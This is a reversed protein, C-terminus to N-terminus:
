GSRPDRGDLMALVGDVQALTIQRDGRAVAVHRAVAEALEPSFPAGDRCARVAAEAQARLAQFTPQHQRARDAWEEHGFVEGMRITGQNLHHSAFVHGAGFPVTACPPGPVDIDYYARVAQALPAAFSRVVAVDEPAVVRTEDARAIAAGVADLQRHRPLVAADDVPRGAIHAQSTEVVVLRQLNAGLVVLANYRLEEPTM